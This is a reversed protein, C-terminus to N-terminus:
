GGVPVPAPPPLVFLLLDSGHRALPMLRRGEPTPRGSVWAAQAATSLARAHVWIVALGTTRVLEDLAAPDPLRSATEMREPFAVPWYSSYGNLLPHWHAISHYMAAAHLRSNPQGAVIPAELMAGRSRQLLTLFETPVGPPEHLPYSTPMRANTTSWYQNEYTRYLCAVVATALAFRVVRAVAARRVRVDILAGIEAFAVGSVVALGMLGAIGLRSPVRMTEHIPLVLDIWGLPTRFPVGAITAVPPLSLITAVVVWLMGHAWAAPAVSRAGSRRRCLVTAGGLVVLGAAVWTVSFPHSWGPLFASVLPWSVMTETVTWPTQKALDPNAARVAQYARYVPFLMALVVVLVTALRVGAPRTDRRILRIATLVGLPGLIAPAVYVLDTLAQLVVLAVLGTASRWSVLPAAAVFLIVPMPALAAWHPATPVFDYLLWQNLLVTAAAVAGALHSGTWRHVVVHMATGTLALGLLFTVNIALTPNASALFVPAFLPLAGLGAPGYFLAAPAPHFINAYAFRTPATTLAHSEYALVWTSYIGDYECALRTWPLMSGLSAVLPWTLWALAGVYGALLGVPLLVARLHARPAM